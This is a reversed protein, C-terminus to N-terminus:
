RKITIGGGTPVPEQSTGGKINTMCVFTPNMGGSDCTGPCGATTGCVVTSGAGCACSTLALVSTPATLSAVIPLAIVTGLGIKKIVDRRSLGNFNNTLNKDLLNKESLQDIALWIMDEPVPKGTESSFMKTIEAIPTKGDCSKWVFAATQNLCHAKNSNLDYVLVEDNTEQIVLGDKRASPIQLEGM